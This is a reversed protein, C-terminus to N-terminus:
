PFFRRYPTYSYYRSNCSAVCRNAVLDAADVSFVSLFSQQSSDVFGKLQLAHAEPFSPFTEGPSPGRYIHVSSLDAIRDLRCVVEMQSHFSRNKALTQSILDDAGKQNPHRLELRMANKLAQLGPLTAHRHHRPNKKMDLYRAMKGKRGCDGKEGELEAEIIRGWSKRRKELWRKRFFSLTTPLDHCLASEVKSLFYDGEKPPVLCNLLCPGDAVFRSSCQGSLYSEVGCQFFQLSMGLHAKEAVELRGRPIKDRLFARLQSRLANSTPPLDTSFKWGYIDVRRNHQLTSLAEKQESDYAPYAVQRWHFFGPMVNDYCLPGRVNQVSSCQVFAETPGFSTGSEISVIRGKDCKAVLDITEDERGGGDEEKLELLIRVEGDFM